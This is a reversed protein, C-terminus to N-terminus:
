STGEPKRNEAEQVELWKKILTIMDEREATSLYSTYGNNGYEFLFLTFGIQPPLVKKLANALALLLEHLEKERPHKM